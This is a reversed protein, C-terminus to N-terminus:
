GELITHQVKLEKGNNICRLISAPSMHSQMAKRVNITSPFDLLWDVIVQVDNTNCYSALRCALSFLNYSYGLNCMKRVRPRGLVDCMAKFKARQKPIVALPEELWVYLADSGALKRSTTNLEGFLSNADVDKVLIADIFEWGLLVACAVRRHGDIITHNLDIIIPNVLGRFEMSHMLPKINALMSRTPPNHKAHSLSNVNVATLKKKM